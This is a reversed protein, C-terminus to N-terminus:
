AQIYFELRRLKDIKIIGLQFSFIIVLNKSYMERSGRLRSAGPIPDSIAVM